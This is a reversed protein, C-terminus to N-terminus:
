KSEGLAARIKLATVVSVVADLRPTGALLRLEDVDGVDEAELVPLVKRVVANRTSPVPEVKTWGHLTAEFIQPAASSRESRM